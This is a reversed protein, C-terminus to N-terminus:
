GIHTKMDGQEPLASLEQSTDNQAVTHLRRWPELASLEELVRQGM